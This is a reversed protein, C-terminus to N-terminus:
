QQRLKRATVIRPETDEKSSSRRADALRESFTPQTTATGAAVSEGIDGVEPSETAAPAVIAPAPSPTEPRLWLAAVVVVNVVLLLGLGWLWRSAPRTDRSSPVSAFDASQQQQRENESKKLADLIFSM